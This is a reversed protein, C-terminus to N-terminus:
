KLRMTRAGLPLGVFPAQVLGQVGAAAVVHLLESEALQYCDRLIQLAPYTDTGAVGLITFRAQGSPDVEVSCFLGGNDLDRESRTKGLVIADLTIEFLLRTFEVLGREFELAKWGPGALQIRAGVDYDEEDGEFPLTVKASTDIKEINFPGITIKTM